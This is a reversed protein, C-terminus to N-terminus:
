GAENKYLGFFKIDPIDEQVDRYESMLSLEYAVLYNHTSVFIQCGANALVKM